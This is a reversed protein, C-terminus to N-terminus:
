ADLDVTLGGTLTSADSTGYGTLGAKDLIAALGGQAGLADSLTNSDIGLADALSTLNQQSRDSQTSSTSGEAHHHRHGAHHPRKGDAIDSAMKTLQDDSLAPAGQPANAKLDATIADVLDDQSVGKQAALASLTTGSQEATTLDDTSLGLLDATNQMPPLPHRQFGSPDFQVNSGGISNVTM